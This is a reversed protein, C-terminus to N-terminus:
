LQRVSFSPHLIVQKFLQTLSLDAKFQDRIAQYTCADSELLDRGFAYGLMQKTVCGIVQPSEALKPALEVIGSAQTMLGNDWIGPTKTLDREAHIDTSGNVTRYKGVPSFNEFLVGFPDITSHCGACM